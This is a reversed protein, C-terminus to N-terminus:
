TRMKRLSSLNRMGVAISFVRRNFNDAPAYAPANSLQYTKDNTYRTDRDVTRALLFLRASVATQLEALTPNPLFVNPEGDGDTDLGFEIQFNEIGQALCETVVTPPSSYQLVKRCLTPVADDPVVAFRRIYYISPRYEWEVFPAPISVAPPAAEPERFLLGMTGNTRLYVTDVLSVAPARAGALRKIAVVDTGPLIEAPDICSFAASATAGTANDVSEIALSEDTGPTVTQYIWDVAGAPGCDTAVALSADPFIAAPLVLDAWFGAMSVDNVLERIAQRADDQMRLVDEDRDFSHRNEVFVTVIAGGMLLGLVMAVMLEVITFGQERNQSTVRTV